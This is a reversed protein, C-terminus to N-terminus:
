MRSRPSSAPLQFARAAIEQFAAAPVPPSFLYGQFINCGISLLAARQGESEVGEAIIDLSLAKGMSVIAEIIASIRSNLFIEQVFSKDIKLETLPMSSLYALSSYGTGFDDLSFQLGEQNLLTMKEIVDHVDEVLASETLELKLRRPDAGSTRIAEMVRAVFDPQRFQHASINVSITLSATEPSHAWQAIQRCADKLIFEGLPMIIGTEEALAIFAGPALIGRTPHKWRVLAEAGSLREGDWQPQYYLLFQGERLAQHLDAELTARANAAAQLAPAFFRVTGSGVSKAQHLAIEAQKLVEQVNEQRSGFITIGVSASTQCAHGAIVVPQRIAQLTRTVITEAQAAAQEEQAALNELVVVFQDGGFRAVTEAERISSTLRRAVERLLEDGVTHGLSDNLVKFNSLDLMLLARLRGAPKMLDELREILMRRNPLATISDYFALTRIEENAARIQQLARCEKELLVFRRRLPLAIGVAVALVGLFILIHIASFPLAFVVALHMGGM